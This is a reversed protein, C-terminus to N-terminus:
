FGVDLQATVTDKAGPANYFDYGLIMSVNDAITYAAGVNLSGMFSDGSIYDAGVWWKDSLARDYSAWVQDQDTGLTRRSGVAYGLAFRGVKAAYSALVYVQNVGTTGEDGLM